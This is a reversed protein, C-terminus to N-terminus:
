ITLDEPFEDNNRYHKEYKIDNDILTQLIANYLSSIESMKDTGSSLRPTLFTALALAVLEWFDEPVLDEQGFYFNKKGEELLIAYIEPEGNTLLESGVRKYDGGEAGILRFLTDPLKYCHKYGGKPGLDDGDLSVRETLFSWAHERSAKRLATGYFRNLSKVIPDTGATIDASTVPEINLVDLAMNYVDIKDM